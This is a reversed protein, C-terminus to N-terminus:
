DSIVEGSVNDVVVPSELYVLTPSAGYHEAVRAKWQPTYLADAAERSRWLYVGGVIAGDESLTYVKRILGPLQQYQPATQLFLARAEAVSIPEPLRISNIVTIM